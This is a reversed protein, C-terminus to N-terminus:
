PNIWYIHGFGSSVESNTFHVSSIKTCTHYKIEGPVLRILM